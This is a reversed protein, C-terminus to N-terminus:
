REGPEVYDMSLFDFIDNETKFKKDVLKNTKLEKIGHENLTYGKELANKRMKINFTKSGTFYLLAFPYEEPTIFLIDLRRFISCVKSVGMYKQKGFAFDDHIYEQKKLSEIIEILLNRGNPHTILVDIDGSSSKGRRYSGVINYVINQDIDRLSKEILAHHVTMEDRPIKKTFDEYYKLGTIQKNNLLHLNKKLDNISLINHDYVLSSAKVSGVSMIDMFKEIAKSKIQQQIDIKVDGNIIDTILKNISTGIGKIESLEEINKIKKLKFNESDLQSIVNTYAKKKFHNKESNANNKLIEIITKTSVTM